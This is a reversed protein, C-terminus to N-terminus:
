WSSSPSRSSSSCAADQRARDDGQHVGERPRHLDRRVDHPRLELVTLAAQLGRGLQGLINEKPVRMNTFRM